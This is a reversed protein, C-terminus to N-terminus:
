WRIVKVRCMMMVSLDEEVKSSRLVYYNLEVGSSEAGHEHLAAGKFNAKAGRTGEHRNEDKKLGLSSRGNIIIGLGSQVSSHRSTLPQM